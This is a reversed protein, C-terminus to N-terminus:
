HLTRMDNQLAHLSERAGALTSTLRRYTAANWGEQRVQMTQLQNQVRDILRILERQAQQRTM